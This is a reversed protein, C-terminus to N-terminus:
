AMGIVQQRDKSRLLPIRKDEAKTGDREEVVLENTITM